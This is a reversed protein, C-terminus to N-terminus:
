QRGEEFIFFFTVTHTPTVALLTPPEGGGAWGFICPHWDVRPQREAPLRQVRLLM